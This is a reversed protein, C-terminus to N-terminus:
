RAGQWAGRDRVGALKQFRRLAIELGRSLPQRSVKEWWDPYRRRLAPLGEAQLWVLSVLATFFWALMHYRSTAVYFLGVALQALTAVAVLRLWPDFRARLAVRGVIAVALANVPAMFAMESPGSLWRLLHRVLRMVPESALHLSFLDAAAAAYASPPMVFVLPHASNASFPVLVGGFYWNHLPMALAPLFGLCLAALRTWQRLYLAALGAGGLIVAVFPAINPRVFVALAFLLGGALAPAFRTGPGLRTFGVVFLLGAFAFVCAAPDAFGRAAWKAYQFFTTGFLGGVPVAVFILALALAWRGPLFRRYIAFAVLPLLLILSLYGFNTDGFVVREFARLYRLGPGGYYFVSEGGRLAEAIHGAVLNQVIGRATSEYWLGDDGGDLPRLGGIFSADDIGIVVLALGLLTAPLLVGRARWQGLLGVITVAAFVMLAIAAAQRAVVTVPPELTMALTGPKFGLGYIRKGIDSAEIPRCAWQSNSLLAFQENREEWIVDGIWCLDSGAFAAPFRYMVFYPMTLQWRQLGRWFRRDREFRDIDSIDRNWDYRVDNTFGLRLWVPDSFNIGDVRRSLPAADLIGDASFAYTRSPFGGSRWCGATKADCRREPPHVKDFEAAMLRYVDPPLGTVLANDGGEVLFVNHGEDIRPPNLLYQGAAAVLAIALATLWARPRLVPSGFFVVVASVLLIAYPLLHNVPLGVVAVVLALIAWKAAVEM